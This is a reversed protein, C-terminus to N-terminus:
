FLSFDYLTQNLAKIQRSATLQLDKTANWQTWIPFFRLNQFM